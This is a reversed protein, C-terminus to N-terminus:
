CGAWCRGAGAHSPQSAAAGTIEQALLAMAKRFAACEGLAPKGLNAARGMQKGLDPIQFAPKSGLGQEIMAMALGGPM